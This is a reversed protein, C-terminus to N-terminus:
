GPLSRIRPLFHLLFLVAAAFRIISGLAAADAQVASFIDFVIAANWLALGAGARGPRPRVQQIRPFIWFATAFITQVVWGYLILDAHLSRVVPNMSGTGKATLAWAGLLVGALGWLLSARLTLVTLRPM